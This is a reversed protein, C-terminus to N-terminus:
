GSQMHMQSIHIRNHGNATYQDNEIRNVVYEFFSSLISISIMLIITNNTVKKASRPIPTGTTYLIPIEVVSVKSSLTFLRGAMVVTLWLIVVPISLKEKSAM